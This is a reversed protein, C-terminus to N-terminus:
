LLQTLPPSFLVHRSIACFFIGELFPLFFFIFQGSPFIPASPPPVTTLELPHSFWSVSFPFDTYSLSRSGEGLFPPRCSRLFSIWLRLFVSPPPPFPEPPSLESHLFFLCQSLFPLCNLFSHLLPLLPSPPFFDADWTNCPYPCVAYLFISSVRAFPDSPFVFFTNLRVTALGYIRISLILINIRLDRYPCLDSELLFCPTQQV